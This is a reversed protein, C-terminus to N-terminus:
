ECCRRGEGEDGGGSKGGVWMAGGALGGGGGSVTDGCGPPEADGVGCVCGAGGGRERWSGGGDGAMVGRPYVGM